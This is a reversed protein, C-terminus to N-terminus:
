PTVDNVDNVLDSHDVLPADAAPADARPADAPPAVPSFMQAIIEAPIQAYGARGRLSGSILDLRAAADAADNIGLFKRVEGENPHGIMNLALEPCALGRGCGCGPLGLLERIKWEWKYEVMAAGDKEILLRMEEQDAPSPVIGLLRFIRNTDRRCVDSTHGFGDRPYDPHDRYWLWTCMKSYLGNYDAPTMPTMSTTKVTTTAKTKTTKTKMTKAM